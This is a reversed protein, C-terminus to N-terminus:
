QFSELFMTVLNNFDKNSSMLREVKTISHLVTTHHKGGFNRGIEPLSATTLQRCLYMGIQRPQAIMKSNNKSKIEPIKLNFYDAVRKQIQEINIHKEQSRLTHKLVEQAMSLNVKEGRISSFAMLRVM